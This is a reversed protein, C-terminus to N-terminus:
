LGVDSSEGQLLELDERMSGRGAVLFCMGLWKIYAKYVCRQFQNNNNSYIQANTM